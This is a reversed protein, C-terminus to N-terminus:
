SPLCTTIMALAAHGFRSPGGKPKHKKQAGCETIHVDIGQCYSGEPSDQNGLEREPSPQAHGPRRHSDLGDVWFDLNSV